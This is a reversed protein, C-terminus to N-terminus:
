AKKKKGNSYWIKLTFDASCSCLIPEVPHFNVAYVRDTHGELRQVLEGTGETGGVSYVYVFPDASGTALLMTSEGSRDKEQSINDTSNTPLEGKSYIEDQSGGRKLGQKVERLQYFSSKIPWNKNKYGKLAHILRQESHPPSFGRDYVRMVNDYSNVTMYRPEEDRDSYCVTVHSIPKKTPENLYSSICKGTRVDWTKLYGAADGSLVSTGDRYVYLTNVMAENRFILGADPQRRDIMCLTNRSTGSFFINRDQPNFMVCQVFGETAYSAELKGSEVDWVKCTQDYGGSLLETSDRSWSLDSINLSHNKLCHIEKQTAVADWIRVTKDFSGSALLKGCPSFQVAYVAGAHGKLEHKLYFQKGDKHAERSVGAFVDQDEAAPKVADSVSTFPADFGELSDLSFPSIKPAMLNFRTSLEYLSKKLAMNEKELADVKQKLLRSERSAKEQQSEM